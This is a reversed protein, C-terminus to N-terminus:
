NASIIRRAWEDDRLEGRKTSHLLQYDSFGSIDGFIFVVGGEISNYHWVEYPKKDMDNPYRDIEDPEGYLIYVRGRDTKMGKKNITGYKEDSLRVREMYQNKFENVPTSPDQDRRKWFKLLFDRKGEVSTLKNYQDSETPTVIYKAKEFQQDCEETTLVSYESSLLENSSAIASFTDKVAPNYVYMRKSSTSVVNAASDIANIVLTYTDTPYKMLNLTGVEVRAADGKAITKSKELLKYGKSNFLYSKLLLNNQATNKMMNYIESYYFLVPIGEGFVMTPNPQVELTNKYFISATDAGEQKINTALEIDSLALNKGILPDISITENITKIKSENNGDKGIVTCKYSGKPVIFGIVGVLNKNLSVKSTDSIRNEVKWDKDVIVNNNVTDAIKIHLVANAAYGNDKQVVKLNSLGFSYYFEIYNSLSDYGFRAYDFDFNLNNQARLAFPSLFVLLLLLKKM